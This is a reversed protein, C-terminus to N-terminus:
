TKNYIHVSIEIDHSFLMVLCLNQFFFNQINERKKLPPTPTSKKGYCRTVIYIAYAHPHPSNVRM